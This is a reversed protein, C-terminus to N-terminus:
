LRISQYRDDPRPWPPAWGALDYPLTAEALFQRLIDSARAGTRDLERAAMVVQADIPDGGDRFLKALM